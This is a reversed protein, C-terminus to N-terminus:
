QVGSIKSSASTPAPYRRLNPLLRRHYRAPYPRRGEWKLSPHTAAVPADVEKSHLSRSSLYPRATPRAVGELDIVAIGDGTEGTIAVMVNDAGDSVLARFNGSLQIPLSIRSLFKGTFGDYADITNVGPQFLLSSDSSFAAGYVYDADYSANWGLSQMSIGNGNNDTILGGAALRTQDPSLALEFGGSFSGLPGVNAAQYTNTTTDVYGVEGDNCFYVRSGDASMALRLDFEDVDDGQLPQNYPGTVYVAQGTSTNLRYLDFAGDGNQDSTMFYVVGANTVAVGAPTYTLDFQPVLPYIAVSSPSAPDLVYIALAGADTIALKSGDPSLALSFLRQAGATRAPIPIPISNLWQRQTKSFVRLQNTDTFYYLDRRKDYVGDVLQSGTAAFRQTAPLYQIVPSQGTSTGSSSTVVIPSSAGAVGAPVTYEIGQTPFPKTVPYDNAYPSAVFGTLTTPQGAVTVTLGVPAPAYLAGTNSLSSPAFGYGFIQAPGGGEATAYSTPTELIWPGYSYAEPLLQEGGDTATVRIDVPGPTGTPASAYLMSNNYSIDDGTVSGFYISGLPPPSTQVFQSELWSTPTGGSTPGTAVQLSSFGFGTGIPLPNLARTDLLGIGNDLVGGILGNDSIAQMYPNSPEYWKYSSSAEVEPMWGVLQGSSLNYAYLITGTSPDDMYLTQNDPGIIMNPYVFNFRKVPSPFSNKIQLTTSDLVYVKTEDFTVITKGDPSSAFEAVSNVDQTPADFLNPSLNWTGTEPDLSCLQSSGESTLVPTLIVRTRNATLLLHEFGEMCTQREPMTGDITSVFKVITNDAPNWLAIPGNGDVWSYYPYLFYQMLLLKGNAMAFVANANFGYQSITSKPYRKTIVLNVPDVVYIDGSFTGVYLSTGDPAQDIGFAGPVNIAATLKQTTADVVNLHGLYPDSSFFRSTASHYLTLTPAPLAGFDTTSDTRIYNSRSKVAVPPLNSAAGIKVAVSVMQHLAAYSVSINLSGSTAGTAAATLYVTVAGSGQPITFSAPTATVGSPLGAISITTNGVATNDNGDIDASVQFSNSGGAALTLSTPQAQVSLTPASVSMSFQSQHALSGSSGNVTVTTTAVPSSLAATVQVVQQKGPLITFSAPSVSVGSPLGSLSIAVPASFKNYGTVGIMLTHSTGATISYGTFIGTSITFDPGTSIALAMQATATLVGSTGTFVVTGSGSSGAAATFTLQQTSGPYLTTSTPFVTVGSPLGGVTIAVPSAFGNAPTLSLTVTQSAGAIVSLTAPAGISFSMPGIVSVAVSSSHTLTGSQGTLSMTSVTTLAAATSASITVAQSAYGTLNFSSPAVTLGAPLGSISIAVTGTFANLPNLTVSFAASGGQNVAITSQSLVLKFDPPQSQSPGSTSAGGGCSAIPLCTLLILCSFFLRTRLWSHYSTSPGPHM